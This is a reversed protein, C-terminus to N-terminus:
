GRIPSAVAQGDILADYARAVAAPSVHSVVWRRANRGMEACGAPDDLMTELAGVFADLDDPAVALGAGSA